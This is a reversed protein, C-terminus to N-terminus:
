QFKVVKYTEVKGMSTIITIQLADHNLGSIDIMHNAGGGKITALTNGKIDTIIIRSIKENTKSSIYIKDPTPNPFLKVSHEITKPDTIPTIVFYTQNMGQTVVMSETEGTFIVAEGLSWTLNAQSNSAYSGSSFLGEQSFGIFAYLLFIISIFFKM